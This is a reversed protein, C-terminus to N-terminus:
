PGTRWAPLRILALMGQDNTRIVDCPTAKTAERPLGDWSGVAIRVSGKVAKRAKHRGASKLTLELQWAAEGTGRRIELSAGAITKGFLKRQGDESMSLWLVPVGSRLRVSAKVPAQTAPTMDPAEVKEFPM